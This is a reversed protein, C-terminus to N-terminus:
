LWKKRRFYVIFAVVIAVMLGVALPYGFYWDLEPMNWPSREPNFNMGYIGAVFSLPIFITAIITLVKMIENMKNSVSSLYVGMLDSCIERYSEVMEVIQIAHDNADRFYTRTRPSVFSIDERLLARTVERNPIVVRRLENLFTKLTQIAEVTSPDPRELVAEELRDLREGLPEVVGFYSDVLADLLAYALYDPGSGTIRTRASRIRERIPDFSDGETEQFTLVYDSGVFMSLQESPGENGRPMRAVIFLHEEFEEVKSRQDTHVVDELALRHVGFVDGVAQVVEADGLGDVNIWTVPRRGVHGALESAGAVDHEEHGEPGFSLVRIRPRPAGPDVVLTGPAAGPKRPVRRRRKSPTSKSITM